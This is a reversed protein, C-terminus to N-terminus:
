GFPGRLGPCPRTLCGPDSGWGPQESSHSMPSTAEGRQAKPDGRLFSPGIGAGNRLVSCPLLCFAVLFHVCYTSLLHCRNYHTIPHPARLFSHICVARVAPDWTHEGGLAVRTCGLLAAAQPGVRLHVQGPMGGGPCGGSRAGWGHVGGGRGGGAALACCCTGGGLRTVM